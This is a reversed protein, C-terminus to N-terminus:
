AAVCSEDRARRAAQVNNQYAGCRCLNGSFARRIDADTPAPNAEFLAKLSMIQGSSCFGFQFADATNFAQQLPDLRNGDAVGVISDVERGACEVGPAQTQPQSKVTLEVLQATGRTSSYQYSM